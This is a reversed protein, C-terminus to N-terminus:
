KLELLQELAEMFGEIDKEELLAPLLVLEIIQRTETKM